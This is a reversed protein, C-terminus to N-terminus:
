YNTCLSLMVFLSVEYDSDSSDAGDLGQCQRTHLSRFDVHVLVGKGIGLTLVGASAIHLVLDTGHRRGYVVFQQSVGSPESIINEM